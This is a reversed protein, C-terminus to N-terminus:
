AWAGGGFIGGDIGSSNRNVRNPVLRPQSYGAGGVKADVPAAKCGAPRQPVGITTAMDQPSPSGRLKARQAPTMNRVSEEGKWGDNFDCTAAGPSARQGRQQPSTQQYAQPQYGQPRGMTPNGALQQQQPPPPERLKARQAPTMNTATNDGDWGDDFQYTGAGPNVRRAQRQQQRMQNQQQKQEWQLVRQEEYAANQLAHRKQPRHAKTDASTSSSAM